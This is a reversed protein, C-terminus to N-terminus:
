SQVYKVGKKTNRKNVKFLYISYNNELAIFEHIIMHFPFNIKHIQFIMIVHQKTKKWNGLVMLITKSFFFFFFFHCQQDYYLILNSGHLDVTIMILFFFMTPRAWTSNIETVKSSYSFQNLSNSTLTKICLTLM